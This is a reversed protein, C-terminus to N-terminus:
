FPYSIVGPNLGKLIKVQTLSETFNPKMWVFDEVAYAMWKLIYM